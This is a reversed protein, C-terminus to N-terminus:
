MSQLQLSPFAGYTFNWVTTDWGDKESFNAPDLLYEKRVIDSNIIDGGKYYVLEGNVWSASGPFAPLTFNGFGYDNFNEQTFFDDYDFGDPVKKTVSDYGVHLVYDDAVAAYCNRITGSNWDAIGRSGGGPSAYVVICNEIKGASDGGANIGAIGASREAYGQHSLTCTVRCNRILGGNSGAVAGGLGQCNVTINEFSTNIIKANASTTMFIGNNYNRGNDAAPGLSPGQGYEDEGPARDLANITVNRIAYGMGDFVGEFTKTSENETLPKGIPWFMQNAFDIDNGLVYAGNMNDRISNFDNVTRIVKTVVRVTIEVYQSDVFVRLRKDGATEGEFVKKKVTIVDNKHSWDDGSLVKYKFSLKQIEDAEFAFKVDAPRELEYYATHAYASVRESVGASIGENANKSLTTGGKSCAALGCALMAALLLSVTKALSKKM